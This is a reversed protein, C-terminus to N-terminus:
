NMSPKCETFAFFGRYINHQIKRKEKLFVSVKKGRLFDDIKGFSFTFLYMGYIEGECDFPILFRVHSTFIGRM